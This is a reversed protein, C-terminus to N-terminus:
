NESRISDNKCYSVRCGYSTLALSDLNVRAKNHLLETLAIKAYSTKEDTCYRSRNYNGRYFLRHKADLLAAQPTSYVGCLAAVSPDFLVPLPLGIKEQIQQVSYTKTSMVVVVFAVQQGFQRVLAKFHPKNFRSCPCDPNFFHLLVPKNAPLELRDQLAIVTGTKVPKYNEPVPTPLQYLWDNYWFLAIVASLLVLLWMMVLSKRIM